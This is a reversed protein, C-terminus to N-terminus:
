GDSLLDTTLTLTLSHHYGCSRLSRQIYIVIIIISFREGGYLYLRM